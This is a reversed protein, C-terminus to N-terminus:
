NDIRWPHIPSSITVLYLGQYFPTERQNKSSAKKEGCLVSITPYTGNRRLITIGCLSWNRNWWSKQRAASVESNQKQNLYLWQSTSSYPSFVLQELTFLPPPPSHESARKSQPGQIPSLYIIAQMVWWEFNQGWHPIYCTTWM